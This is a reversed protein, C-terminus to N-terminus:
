GDLNEHHGTAGRKRYAAARIAERPHGKVEVLERRLAALTLWTSETALAEGASATISSTWSTICWNRERWNWTGRSPACSRVCMSALTIPKNERPGARREAVQRRVASAVLRLECAQDLPQALALQQHGIGIGVVTAVHAQARAIGPARHVRL